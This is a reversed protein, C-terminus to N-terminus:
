LTIQGVIENEKPVTNPFTNPLTAQLGSVKLIAHGTLM